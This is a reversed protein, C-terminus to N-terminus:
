RGAEKFTFRGGVDEIFFEDGPLAEYRESIGDGDGEAKFHAGDEETEVLYSKGCECFTTFFHYRGIRAADALARPYFVFHEGCPTPLRVLTGDSTSSPLDAAPTWATVTVDRLLSVLRQGKSLRAFKLDDIPMGCPWSIPGTPPWVQVLGDAVALEFELGPTTFRFGHLVVEGLVITMAYAQPRDPEGLGDIKVVMPTVWIASSRQTGQHRGIWFRSAPLPTVDHRCAYLARYEEQPLGYGRARDEESSVLMGVLATKQVWAAIAGVDDESIAGASGLIFPTLVRGAGAELKSMWGHNCPGCVDRVKRTFPRTIGLDRASRNIPGAGHRRPAADLGIRTLWDGFVHEGTLKGESGCFVCARSERKM